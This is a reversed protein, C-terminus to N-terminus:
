PQPVDSALMQGFASEVLQIGSGSASPVVPAIGSGPPSYRGVSGDQIYASNSVNEPPNSQSNNLENAFEPHIAFASPAAKASTSLLFSLLPVAFRTFCKLKLADALNAARLLDWRTTSM